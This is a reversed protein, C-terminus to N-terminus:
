HTMAYIFYNVGFKYAENTLDVPLLGTASYEWFEGLDHNYNAIAILRKDRDNDEFMGLFAPNGYYGPLDLTNIEFFSHFVPHTADLEVWQGDPMVRRMQAQLNSWHGSRFDDFIVFGGKQLYTRLGAEEADNMTWYGPESMYVAPYLHLDPDDLTLINSADQLATVLSVEELIKTLHHDATPYDHAWPLERGFGGGGFSGMHYQLRVFAFRGDYPVKAQPAPDSRRGRRFFGDQATADAVALATVSATVVLLAARRWAL